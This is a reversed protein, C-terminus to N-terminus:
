PGDPTWVAVSDGDGFGGFLGAYLADFRSRLSDPLMWRNYVIAAAGTELAQAAGPPPGSWDLSFPALRAPVATGGSRVLFGVPRPREDVTQFLSYRRIGPSCPVELVPGEGGRLSEYEGPVFASV